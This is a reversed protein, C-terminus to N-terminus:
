IVGQPINASEGGEKMAELIEKEVTKYYELRNVNDLDEFILEDPNQSNVKPNNM